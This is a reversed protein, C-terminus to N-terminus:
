AGCRPSSSRRPSRCSTRPCARRATVRVAVRGRRGHGWRGPCPRVGNLPAGGGGARSPRPPSRSRPALQRVRRRVGDERRTEWAVGAGTIVALVGLAILEPVRFVFPGVVALAVVAALLPRHVERLALWWCGALSLLYLAVGGFLIAGWFDGLPLGWTPTAPDAAEALLDKLGLAYLIVGAVMPLHMFTYVDRALRLRTAEDRAHHLAQELAFALTDLVGVM